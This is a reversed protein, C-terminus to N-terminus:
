RDALHVLHPRKSALGVSVLAIATDYDHGSNFTTWPCSKVYKSVQVQM